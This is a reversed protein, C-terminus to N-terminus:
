VGRLDLFSFDDTAIGLRCTLMPRVNGPTLPLAIAVTDM